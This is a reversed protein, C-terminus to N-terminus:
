LPYYTQRASTRTPFVPTGQISVVTLFIMPSFVELNNYCSLTIQTSMPGTYSSWSDLVFVTKFSPEENNCNGITM